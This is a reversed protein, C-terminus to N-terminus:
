RRGRCNLPPQEVTNEGIGWDLDAGNGESGQTRALSRIAEMEAEHRAKMEAELAQIRDLPKTATNGQLPNRKNDRPATKDDRKHDPM